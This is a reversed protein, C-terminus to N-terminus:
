QQNELWQRAHDATVTGEYDSVITKAIEIARKKNNREYQKVLSYRGDAASEMAALKGDSTEHYKRVYTRLADRSKPTMGVEIQKRLESWIDHSERELKVLRAQEMEDKLQQEEALMVERERTEAEALSKQHDLTKQADENVVAGFARYKGPDVEARVLLSFVKIMDDDDPGTGFGFSGISTYGQRTPNDTITWIAYQRIDFPASSFEDTVLLDQLVGSQAIAISLRDSKGPVKLHMNICAVSINTAKEELPHLDIALHSTVIMSQIQESSPQFLTGVPVEITVPENCISRLSLSVETLDDGTVSAEVINRDIADPLSFWLSPIADPTPNPLSLTNETDAINPPSDPLQANNRSQVGQYVIVGGILLIWIACGFFWEQSSLSASGPVNTHQGCSPCCDKNQIFTIASGIHGCGTCKVSAWRHCLPCQGPTKFHAFTGSCAECKYM